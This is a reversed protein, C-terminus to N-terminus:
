ELQGMDARLKSGISDEFIEESIKNLDNLNKSIHNFSIEGLIFCDIDIVFEKKAIPNPYESNFMGYNMLVTIAEKKLRIQHMSRVPRFGDKFGTKISSAFTDDLWGSLDFTDGDTCEVENIYRLGVRGVENISYKRAFESWIDNILISADQFKTYSGERYEISLFTSAINVIRKRDDTAYEWVRNLRRNISQGTNSFMVEVEEGEQQKKHPFISLSDMAPSADSALAHIPNFDIRIIVNTLFNKKYLVM